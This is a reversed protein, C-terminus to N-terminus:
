QQTRLKKRLDRAVELANFGRLGSKMSLSIIKDRSDTFSKQKFEGSVDQKSVVSKKLVHKAINSAM